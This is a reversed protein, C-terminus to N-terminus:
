QQGASHDLYAKLEAVKEDTYQKAQVLAQKAALTKILQVEPLKTTGDTDLSIKNIIGGSCGLYANGEYDEAATYIREPIDLEFTENASNGVKGVGGALNAFCRKQTDLYTLCIKGSVPFIYCQPYAEIDVNLEKAWNIGDFSRYVSALPNDKNTTDTNLRFFYDHAYLLTEPGVYSKGALSCVYGYSTFIRDKLLVNYCTLSQDESINPKDCTVIEAESLGEFTDFIHLVLQITVANEQMRRVMVVIRGRSDKFIGSVIFKAENRTDLLINEEIVIEEYASFDETAYIIGKEQMSQNANCCYYKGGHYIFHTATLNEGDKRIYDMTKVDTGYLVGADTYAFVLDNLFEIKVIKGSSATLIKEQVIQAESADNKSVFLINTKGLM